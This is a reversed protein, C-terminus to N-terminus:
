KCGSAVFLTVTHPTTVDFSQHNNYTCHTPHTLLLDRLTSLKYRQREKGFDSFRV